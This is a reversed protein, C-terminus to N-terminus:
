RIPSPSRSPLRRRRLLAAGAAAHLDCRPQARDSRYPSFFDAFVTLILLLAVLVAGIMGMTNRRFRRWVLRVYTQSRVARLAPAAADAILADAGQPPQPEIAPPMAVDALIPDAQPDPDTGLLIPDPRDERVVSM